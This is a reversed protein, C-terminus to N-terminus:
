RHERKDLADLRRHFSDISRSPDAKRHRRVFFLAAAIVIIVAAAFVLYLM